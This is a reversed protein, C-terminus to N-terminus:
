TDQLDKDLNFKSNHSVNYFLRGNWRFVFVKEIKKQTLAYKYIKQM